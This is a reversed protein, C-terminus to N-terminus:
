ADRDEAVSRFPVPPIYEVPVIQRTPVVEVWQAFVEFPRDTIQVNGDVPQFGGEFVRQGEEYVRDATNTLRIGRILELLREEITQGMPNGDEDVFEAELGDSDEVHAQRLFEIAARERGPRIPLVAQVWPSNLFANRQEDGDLQAIWGRRKADTVEPDLTFPGVPYRRDMVAIM